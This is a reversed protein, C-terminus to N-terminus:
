NLMLALVCRKRGPNETNSQILVLRRPAIFSVGVFDFEDELMVHSLQHNSGVRPCLPETNKEKRKEEKPDERQGGWITVGCSNKLV